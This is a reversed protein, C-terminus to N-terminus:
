YRWNMKGALEIFYQKENESLEKPIAIEIKVLLDGGALGLNRLRLVDGNQSGPPITLIFDQNRPDKLKIKSGL